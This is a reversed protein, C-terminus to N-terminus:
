KTPGICTYRIVYGDIHIEHSIEEPRLPRGICHEIVEGATPLDIGPPPSLQEVIRPDLEETVPVHWRKKKAPPTGNYVRYREPDDGYFVGVPCESTSSRCHFWRAYYFPKKQLEPTLRVHERIQGPRKCRPCLDGDGDVAKTNSMSALFRDAAREKWNSRRALSAATQRRKKM